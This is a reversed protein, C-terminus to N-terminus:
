RIAAEDGPAPLKRYYDSFAELVDGSLFSARAPYEVEITWRQFRDFRVRVDRESIMSGERRPAHCAVADSRSSAPANRDLTRDQRFPGPAHLPGAEGARLGPAAAGIRCPLAGGSGRPALQNSGDAG